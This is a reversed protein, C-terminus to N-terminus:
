EICKLREQWNDSANMARRNGEAVIEHLIDIKGQFQRELNAIAGRPDTHELLHLFEDMDSKIEMFREPRQLDLQRVLTTRGAFGHVIHLYKRNEALRALRDYLGEIAESFAQIDADAAPSSPLAAWSRAIAARARAFSGIDADIVHKLITLALDYDEAIEDVKLPKSYYGSGPLNLIIGENALLILAERVPTKSVNLQRALLGTDLKTRPPVSQSVLLSKLRGYVQGTKFRDSAAGEEGSDDHYMFM